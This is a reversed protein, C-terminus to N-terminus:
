KEKTKAEQLKKLAEAMETIQAQLAAERQKAAEVEANLAEVPAEKARVELWQKARQKLQQLGAFKACVADNANAVHEVTRFGLYKLEEVQSRNVQSWEKLPFGDLVEQEGAKFRAYIAQFRSKDDPRAERVVINKKDGPTMIQVMEADRFCQRGEAATREPDQVVDMYFRVYLKSDMSYRNQHVNHDYELEALSM